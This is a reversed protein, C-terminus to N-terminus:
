SGPHRVWCILSTLKGIETDVVKLGSGDGFGWVLRESGTPMLKLTVGCRSTLSIHFKVDAYVSGM